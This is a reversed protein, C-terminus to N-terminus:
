CTTMQALFWSAFDFVQSIGLLNQLLHSGPDDLATCENWVTVKGIEIKSLGDRLKQAVGLSKRSSGIFITPKTPERPKM